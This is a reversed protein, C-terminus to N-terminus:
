ALDGNAVGAAAPVDNATNDYASARMVFQITSSPTGDATRNTGGSDTKTPDMASTTVAYNANALNTTLHNRFTGTGFDTISTNNFSDLAVANAMDINIWAKALGQQLNTFAAGGESRVTISGSDTLGQLQNTVLSEQNVQISSADDTADEYTFREGVDTSAASADLLLDDGANTASGDTGNLVIRDTEIAVTQLTNEGPVLLDALNRANSM